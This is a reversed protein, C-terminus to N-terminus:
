ALEPHKREDIEEERCVQCLGRHLETAPVEDGCNECLMMKTKNPRKSESWELIRQNKKHVHKVIQRVIKADKKRVVWQDRAGTRRCIQRAPQHLQQKDPLGRERLAQDRLVLAVTRM